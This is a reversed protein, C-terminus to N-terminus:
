ERSGIATIGKEGNKPMAEHSTVHSWKGTGSNINKIIYQLKIVRVEKAFGCSANVSDYSAIMLFIIMFSCYFLIIIISHYYYFVCAIM